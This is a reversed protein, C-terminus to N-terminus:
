HQRRPLARRRHRPLVRRQHTVNRGGIDSASEVRAIGRHHARRHRERAFVADGNARM